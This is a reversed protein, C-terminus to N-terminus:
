TLDNESSTHSNDDVEKSEVFDVREIDSRAFSIFVQELTCQSIAFDQIMFSPDKKMCGLEKFLGSLNCNLCSTMSSTSFRLFRGHHEALTTFPLAVELIHKKIRSVDHKSAEMSCQLDVTYGNMYTTKLHQVSGLCKMEGEVMITLRSCLAEAEEMSHTTLIVSRNKSVNSILRWMKRRALPDMGSSAEDIFLVKPNGILAIGLSLKRKNGGSYTGAPKDAHPLLTLAHILNNVSDHILQNPIGRLRGFLTLTERGTMLELLPDVQPCLGICKRANDVGGPVRGSIDYGAVYADGHTLSVDGTLIGMTTTKGAGNVGLLGFCEGHAICTSLGRVARKPGAKYFNHVEGGRFKLLSGVYARVSHLL